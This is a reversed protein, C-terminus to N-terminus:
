AVSLKCRTVETQKQGRYEKHDKISMTVVYAGPEFGNGTKWTFLHNESDEMKYIYTYGYKTDYGTLVSLTVNIDKYRKGVEGFYSYLANGESWKHERDEKEIAKQYGFPLYVLLGFNKVNCYGESLLVKINHIFESDDDLSLYYDIMGKVTQLASETYISSEEPMEMKFEREARGIDFRVITSVISKTSPEQDAKTYGYKAIVAQAVCLIEEIECYNRNYLSLGEYGSGDDELWDMFEMMAAVYEASLGGTFLKLCSKGIQKFEGSITNRIIYLSTRYRNTHCHECMNESFRFREPIEIDANYRKIINGNSHHELTGIFEWNDVKASGEVEVPFVKITFANGDHEVRKYYPKGKKYSVPEGGYKQCKKSIHSVKKELDEMNYEPIEYNIM